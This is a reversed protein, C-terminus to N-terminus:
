GWALGPVNSVLIAVQQLIHKIGVIKLFFLPRSHVTQRAKQWCACEVAIGLGVRIRPAQYSRFVPVRRNLVVQQWFYSIYKKFFLIYLMFSFFLVFCLSLEYRCGIINNKSHQGSHVLAQEQFVLFNSYNNICQASICARNKIKCSTLSFLLLYLLIGQQIPAFAMM